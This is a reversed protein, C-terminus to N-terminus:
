AWWADGERIGGLNKETMALTCLNGCRREALIPRECPLQDGEGLSATLMGFRACSRGRLWRPRSRPGSGHLGARAPQLSLVPSRVFISWNPNRERGYSCLPTRQYQWFSAEVYLPESRSKRVLIAFIDTLLWGCCISVAQLLRAPNPDVTVQLLRCGILLGFLCCLGPLPVYLSQRVCRPVHLPPHKGAKGRTTPRSV